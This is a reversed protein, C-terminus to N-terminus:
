PAPPAAGEPARVVLDWSATGWAPRCRQADCEVWQAHARVGYRGPSAPATARLEVRAASAAPDVVDSWGLRNDALEFGADATLRVLLPVDRRATEPIVLSLRLPQRPAVPEPHGLSPLVVETALPAAIVGRVALLAVGVAALV